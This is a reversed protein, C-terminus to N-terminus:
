SQWSTFAGRVGDLCPMTDALHHNRCGGFFGITGGLLSGALAGYHFFPSNLLCDREQARTEQNICPSINSAIFLGIVSGLSALVFAWTFSSGFVYAPKKYMSFLCSRLAQVYEIEGNEDNNPVHNNITSDYQFYRGSELEM